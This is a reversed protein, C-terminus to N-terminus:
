MQATTKESGLDITDHENPMKSDDSFAIDGVVHMKLCVCKDKNLNLGSEASVFEVLHLSKDMGCHTVSILM